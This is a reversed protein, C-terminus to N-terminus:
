KFDTDNLLVFHTEVKKLINTTLPTINNDFITIIDKTKKSYKESEDLKTSFEKLKSINIKISAELKKKFNNSKFITPILKEKDSGLGKLDQKDLKEKDNKIDKQKKIYGDKSGDGELFEKLEIGKQKVINTIFEDKKKDKLLIKISKYEEEKIVKDFCKKVIKEYGKKYKEMQKTYEPVKSNELKSMGEVLKYLNSKKLEKNIKKTLTTIFNALNTLKNNLEQKIAGYQVIKENVLHDKATKKLDQHKSKVMDYYPKTMFTCVVIALYKWDHITHDTKPSVLSKGINAITKLFGIKFKGVFDKKSILNDEKLLDEIKLVNLLDDSIKESNDKIDDFIKIKDDLIQKQYEQLEQDITLEQEDLEKNDYKLYDDPNYDLLLFQYPYNKKESIDDLKLNINKNMDKFLDYFYLVLKVNSNYEKIKSQIAEKNIEPQNFIKIIIPHNKYENIKKLIKIDNDTTKFKESPTGTKETKEIFKINKRVISSLADGELDDTLDFIYEKGKEMNRKINELFNKENNENLQKIEKLYGLINSLKSTFHSSNKFINEINNTNIDVIEFYDILKDLRSSDLLFLNENILFTNNEEINEDIAADFDRISKDIKEDTTLTNLILTNRNVYLYLLLLQKEITNADVIENINKKLTNMKEITIISKVDSSLKPNEIKTYEEKKDDKYIKTIIDTDNVEDQILTKITNTDLKKIFEKYTFSTKNLKEVIKEVIDNIEEFSKDKFYSENKLKDLLKKYKYDIAPQSSFESVYNSTHEIKDDPSYLEEATGSSFVDINNLTTEKRKKSYYNEFTDLKSDEVADKNHTKYTEYIIKTIEVLDTICEALRNCHQLYVVMSFTLYLRLDDIGNYLGINNRINKLKGSDNLNEYNIDNLFLNFINKDNYNNFIFDSLYAIQKYLYILTGTLVEERKNIFFLSNIIDLQSKFELDKKGISITKNTFLSKYYKKFNIEKLTRMDKIKFFAHYCSAPLNIKNKKTTTINNLNLSTMTNERDGGTKKPLIINLDEKYFVIPTIKKTIVEKNRLELDSNNLAKYNQLVTLKINNLLFRPLHLINNFYVMNNIYPKEKTNYKKGQDRSVKLTNDLKNEYSLMSIQGMDIYPIKELDVIYITNLKQLERYNKHFLIYKDIYPTKDDFIKNMNKFFRKIEEQSIDFINNNALQHNSILNSNNVNGNDYTDRYLKGLNKKFYDTTKKKPLNILILNTNTIESPPIYYYNDTKIFENFKDIVPKIENTKSQFEIEELSFPILNDNNLEKINEQIEALIGKNAQETIDDSNPKRNINLYQTKLLLRYKNLYFEYERFRALMGWLNDDVSFNREIKSTRSTTYGKIGRTLRKKRHKYYFNRDRAIINGISGSFRYIVNLFEIRKKELNFIEKKKRIIEKESDTKFYKTKTHGLEIKLPTGKNVCQKLIDNVDLNIPIVFKENLKIMQKEYFEYYKKFQESYNVFNDKSRKYNKFLRKLLKVIRNAGGEQNIRNLKVLHTTKKRKFTKKRKVYTNKRKKVTRKKKIANLRRKNFKSYVNKM